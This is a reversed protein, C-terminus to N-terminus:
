ATRHRARYTVAAILVLWAIGFPIAHGAHGLVLNGLCAFLLAIFLLERTPRRRERPITTPPTDLYHDYLTTWVELRNLQRHLDTLPRPAETLADLIEVARPQSVLWALEATPHDPM